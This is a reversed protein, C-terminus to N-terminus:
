IGSKGAFPMSRMLGRLMEMENEELRLLRNKSDPDDILGDQVLFWDVINDASTRYRDALFTVIEDEYLEHPIDIPMNM